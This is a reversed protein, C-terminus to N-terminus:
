NLLKKGTVVENILATRYEKILEIEQEIKNISTDIRKIHTEIYSVTQSQEEKSIPFSIKQQNIFGEWNARPMKTGQTAGDVLDIFSKDFLKFYLFKPILEGTSFLVLLEGYLGGNREAFYVKHLYPRLKNFITDGIKFASLAGQFNKEEDIGVIRGSYSEINEVAIKFSSDDIKEDRLRAVYKLKKVEWHAPIEGLWEIGSDKMEVDPNIGKTAAQNIIAMREEKLYEILSQKKSILNDIETTKQDLYSAIAKQQPLPPILIELDNYKDASINQITSQNFISNKWNEYANSKTFLYLFIPNIVNLNPRARILYGAFCAKGEYNWLIFTKGVTAGSRAFLIDGNKLLFNKAKEESLSKFTDSRLNGNEDFDSIRLYRPNNEDSEIASENAGYELKKTLVYKLKKIEWDEPIEPCWSLGTRKYKVKQNM